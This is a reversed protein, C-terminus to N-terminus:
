WFLYIFHCLNTENKKKVSKKSNTWLGTAGIQHGRGNLHSEDPKGYQKETLFGLYGLIIHYQWIVFKQPLFFYYQAEQSLKWNYM